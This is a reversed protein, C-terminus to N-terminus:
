KRRQSSKIKSFPNHEFFNLDVAIDVAEQVDARKLYRKHKKDTDYIDENESLEKLEEENNKKNLIESIKIRKQYKAKRKLEKTKTIIKKFEPNHSVRKQSLSKLNAILKLTLPKWDKKSHSSFLDSAPSKFSPISTAQLTYDLNKEGIEDLNFISPLPIDSIVGQKQTTKGSPTFYLGVTTKLAGLGRRLHEISQVSGKGFTHDGGVIVARKYDQLTGSVIESASASLRNVLVVLSDKYFIKRDKDKLLTSSTSNKESQKVVHGSAIFLGVLDVAEDLFGGRNNSLDLVLSTIKKKQAQKLLKKVDKTVSKGSKRSHYFTPVKIVGVTHTKNYRKRQFYVISAAEEILEVTNRILKVIFTTKKGEEERLIKLYVPTGKPGRIISVVDEIREGFINILNKKSQGVALIKDKRKIKKSKFAAGGPILQEVITYGFRSRLSAGIGELSLSSTIYFDEMDQANLYSSHSDLSLAFANLYLSHWKNPHCAKFGNKSKINCERLERPNLQPKWSAVQKSINNLIHFLHSISKPLDEEILFINAVQYQIYAEMLQNAAKKSKPYKKIKDDLVYVLNPKFKFSKNLYQKAFTLRDKVRKSYINYIYYLHSCNQRKINSLLHSSRSRIAQIDSELFYIKESDLLDLLNNLIRGKIQPTITSHLIHTKLFQNQIDNIYNCSLSYGNIPISFTVSILFLFWKSM